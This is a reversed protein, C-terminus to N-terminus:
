PGSAVGGVGAGACGAGAGPVNVWRPGSDGVSCVQPSARCGPLRRLFGLAGSHVRTLGAGVGGGGRCFSLGTREGDRWGNQESTQGM